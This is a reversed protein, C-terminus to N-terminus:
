QQAVAGLELRRSSSQEQPGGRPPIKRAAAETVARFFGVSPSSLRFRRRFPKKEVNWFAVTRASNKRCSALPPAFRGEGITFRGMAIRRSTIQFSGARPLGGLLRSSRNRQRLRPKSVMAVACPRETCSMLLLRPGASPVATV